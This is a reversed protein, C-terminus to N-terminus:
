MWQIIHIIHNAFKPNKYLTLSKAIFLCFNFISLVHAKCQDQDPDSTTVISTDEVETTPDIILYPSYITLM